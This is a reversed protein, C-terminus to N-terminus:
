LDKRFQKLENIFSDNGEDETINYLKPEEQKVEKNNTKNLLEEISIVADEEDITQISDKKEMLEKYSIIANEEQEIEYRTREIDNDDEIEEQTEITYSDEIFEEPLIEEENNMDYEPFSIDNEIIHNEIADNEIPNEIVEEAKIEVKPMEVQLEPLPKTEKIFSNEERKNIGIPSTQSLSMERLVNRQYPASPREFNISYKNEEKVPEELIIEKPTEIIPELTEEQVSEEPENNENLEEESDEFIPNEDNNVKIEEAFVNSTANEEEKIIPFEEYDDTQELEIKKKRKSKKIILTVIYIIVLIVVVIKGWFLIRELVNLSEYNPILNM